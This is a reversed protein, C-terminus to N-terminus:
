AARTNAADAMKRSARKRSVRFGMSLANSHDREAKTRESRKVPLMRIEVTYEAVAAHMRAAEM